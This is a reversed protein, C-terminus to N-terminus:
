GPPRRGAPRSPGAPSTAARLPEVFLRQSGYSIWVRHGRLYDFSIIAPAGLNRYVPLNIDSFTERGILLSGFRHIRGTVGNSVSITKIPPDTELGAAGFQEAISADISTAEAGSDLIGSIPHGDLSFVIIPRHAEASWDPSSALPVSGGMWPPAASPCNRGRYLIMRRQRVDLDVDFSSLFDGGLIGDISSRRIGFDMVPGPATYFGGIAFDTGGIVMHRVKSHLVSASGSLDTLTVVLSSPDPRAGIRAGAQASLVTVNSGTDVLLRVAVGDFQGEVLARSPEIILPIVAVEQLSCAEPSDRAPGTCAAVALLALLAVVRM